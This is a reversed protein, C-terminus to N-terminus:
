QTTTGKRRNREYNQGREFGRNYAATIALYFANRQERDEAFDALAVYDRARLQYGKAPHAKAKAKIWEYETKEAM